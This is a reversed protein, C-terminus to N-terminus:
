SQQAIAEAEREKRIRKLESKISADDWGEQKQMEEMRRTVEHYASEASERHFVLEPAYRVKARHALMGRIMPSHKHLLREVTDENEPGGWYVRAIRMDRSMVVENVNVNFQGLTSNERIDQTFVEQLHEQIKSAMRKQRRTLGLLQEIEATSPDGPLDIKRERHRRLESMRKLRKCKKDLEMDRRSKIGGPDSFWHMLEPPVRIGQAYMESGIIEVGAEKYHKEIREMREQQEQRRREKRKLKIKAVKTVKDERLQPPKVVKEEDTVNGREKEDELRIMRDMYQDDTENEDVSDLSSTVDIGELEHKSREIDFFAPEVGSQGLREWEEVTRPKPLHQSAVQWMPSFELPHTVGKRAMEEIWERPTQQKDQFMAAILGDDGDEEWEEEEKESADREKPHVDEEAEYTRHAEGAEVSKHHGLDYPPKLSAEVLDELTATDTSGGFREMEKNWEEEWEDSKTEKKMGPEEEKVARRGSADATDYESLLEDLSVEDGLSALGRNMGKQTMEQKWERPTQQKNHLVAAILGDGGDGGEEWEEEEKESADREKSHVDEEAEYTGHAEEGEVSRYHGLDNPPKQSAEV